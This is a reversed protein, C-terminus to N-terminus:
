ATRVSRTNAISLSSPAWGPIVTYMTGVGGVRFRCSLNTIGQKIPVFDAIDARECGLVSVINDLAESDVNM